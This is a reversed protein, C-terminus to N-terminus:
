KEHGCTEQRFSPSSCSLSQASTAVNGDHLCQTRNQSPSRSRPPPVSPAHLIAVSGVSTVRHFGWNPNCLLLICYAFSQICSTVRPGSRLSSTVTLRNAVILCAAPFLFSLFPPKGVVVRGPGVSVHPARPSCSILYQM